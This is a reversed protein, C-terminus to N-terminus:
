YNSNNERERDINGEIQPQDALTRCARKLKEILHNHHIALDKLM